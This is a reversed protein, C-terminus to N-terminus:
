SSLHQQLHEVRLSSKLMAVDLEGVPIFQVTTTGPKLVMGNQSFRGQALTSLWVYLATATATLTITGDAGISDVVLEAAPLHFQGPATLPLFNRALVNGLVTDDRAASAAVRNNPTGEAHGLQDNNVLTTYNKTQCSVGHGPRSYSQNISRKDKM